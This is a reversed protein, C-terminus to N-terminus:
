LPTVESGVSRVECHGVPVNYVQLFGHLVFSAGTPLFEWVHAQLVHEPKKWVPIAASCSQNTAAPMADHPWGTQPAGAEEAETTPKGFVLLRFVPWCHAVDATQPDVQFSQLDAHTRRESFHLGLSQLSGDTAQKSLQEPSITERWVIISLERLPSFMMKTDVSHVRRQPGEIKFPQFEALGSPVWPESVTHQVAKDLKEVVPGWREGSNAQGPHLSVRM